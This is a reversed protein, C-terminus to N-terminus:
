TRLDWNLPLLDAEKQEPTEAPSKAAGKAKPTPGEQAPAASKAKAPPKGTMLLEREATNRNQRQLRIEQQVIGVLWGYTKNENNEHYREYINMDQKLVEVHKIKRYFVDRLNVEPIPACMNELIRQWQTMFASLDKDCECRSLHDFGYVMESNDFTKFNELLMFVIQRGKLLTLKKM